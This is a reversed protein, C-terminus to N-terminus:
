CDTICHKFPTDKNQLMNIMKSLVNTFFINCTFLSLRYICRSFFIFILARALITTDLRELPKRVVELDVRSRIPRQRAFTLESGGIEQNTAGKDIWTWEFIWVNRKGIMTQFSSQTTPTYVYFWKLFSRATRISRAGRSTDARSPSYTAIVARHSREQERRLAGATNRDWTKDLYSLRFEFTKTSWRRWRVFKALFVSFGFIPM